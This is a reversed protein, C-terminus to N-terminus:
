VQYSEGPKLIIVKAPTEREVDKKFEEADQAILPWTNYHMPIVINPKLLKVAELADDPGMTFNDGIPLLAIDLPHRRGILEMDGFLGTDGAHYITKGDMALIFGCPTGLYEAPGNEDTYFGSGHWAPTLKVKVGDFQHSGGIHMPHSNAGQRAAYNAIEFVSVVTANSQKAIKVADGLHDGHGHSVLVLDAKLDGPNVTAVPNGTIFPDIILTSSGELIFGAHGLFTIKM